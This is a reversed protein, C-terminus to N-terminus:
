RGQGRYKKVPPNNKSHVGKNHKKPKQNYSSTNLAKTKTKAM